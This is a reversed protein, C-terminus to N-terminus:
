DEVLLSEFESGAPQPNADWWGLRDGVLAVVCAVMFVAIM